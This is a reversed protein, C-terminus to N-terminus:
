MKSLVVETNLSLLQVLGFLLCSPLSWTSDLFSLGLFLIDLSFFFLFDYWFISGLM